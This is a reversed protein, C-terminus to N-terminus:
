TITADRINAPGPIPSTKAYIRPESTVSMPATSPVGVGKTWELHRETVPKKKDQLSHEGMRLRRFHAFFQRWGIRAPRSACVVDRRGLRPLASEATRRRYRPFELEM